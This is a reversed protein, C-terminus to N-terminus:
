VTSLTSISHTGSSWPYRRCIPFILTQVLVFHDTMQMWLQLSCACSHYWYTGAQQDINVDYTYSHGPAIPCQTVFAPGDNYAHHSQFSALNNKANIAPFPLDRRPLHTLVYMGHWHISTSRRMRSDSLQNNVTVQLTDGKNASLLPGPFQGNAVSASRSFGDPAIYANGINLTYSQADALAPTLQSILLPLTLILSSIVTPIFSPLRM